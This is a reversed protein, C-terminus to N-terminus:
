VAAGYLLRPLIMAQAVWFASRLTMAIVTRTEFAGGLLVHAGFALFVLVTAVALGRALWVALPRRLIAAVGAAVYVFGASFNFVVVFPVFHGAETTATPGGFLVHGGEVLTGAGFVIALGGALWRWASTSAPQLTPAPTTM